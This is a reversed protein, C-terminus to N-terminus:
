REQDLALNVAEVMEPAAIWPTMRTPATLSSGSPVKM